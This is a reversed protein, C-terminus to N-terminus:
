RRRRRWGALVVLLLLGDRSHHSSCGCGEDGENQGYGPPLAAGDSLGGEGGEEGASPDPTGTEGGTETGPMPDTESPATTPPDTTPGSSTTSTSPDPETPKMVTFCSQASEGVNSSPDTARCTLCYTGEPFSGDWTYPAGADVGSPSGDILLEVQTVTGKDDSADAQITLDMPAQAFVQGDNPFTISCTPPVPDPESAGFLWLLEQHSNQAGQCFQNHQANCLIGNQGGDLTFCQDIFKPDGGANYPNMIDNPEKVHELGYAHAIEQSMTTAQTAASFQDNAQHYAFVINSSQQDNCDLPAIGLVGGGFPNTPSNVCMTYAGGGPRVDTIQVDYPQWDSIIAQLSATRKPGDGYPQYTMAFDPFQSVNQAANDAGGTYKITVGDYNLFFVNSKAVGAALPEPAVDAFEDVLGAPIPRPDARRAPPEDGDPGALARGGWLCTGLFLLGLGALRYPNRDSM